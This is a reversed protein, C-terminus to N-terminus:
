SVRKAKLERKVDELPTRVPKPCLEALKNAASLDGDEAMDRAREFLSWIHTFQIPPLYFPERFTRSSSLISLAEKVKGIRTYGQCMLVFNRFMIDRGRHEMERIQEKEAPTYTVPVKSASGPAVATSSSSSSDVASARSDSEASVEQGDASSAVKEAGGSELKMTERKEVKKVGEGGGSNGEPRFKEEPWLDEEPWLKNEMKRDWEMLRNWVWQGHERMAQKNDTVMKLM